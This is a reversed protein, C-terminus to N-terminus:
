HKKYWRRLVAEAQKSQPTYDREPYGEHGRMGPFWKWLFGGAWWPERYFTTLLAEIANAQALENVARQAIDRELEWTRGAAGDVSLYGFETFLIAKSKERSFDRLRQVHPRWAVCLDSVRPTDAESLPFYASLGIYDLASWFPVEQWDDWNASYTLAGKYVRRVQAILEVWFKPREAVARRFETGVCLMEARMSDAMRAMYLIYDAYQEEWRAWAAEDDFALDGTWGGPVYVQPKLMVKIGAAHALRITECVGEPREGWWQMKPLTNYRVAPVGRRTFAYPVVAIWNAGVARVDSMPDSSFPEPPAVLTLGRVKVTRAASVAAAAGLTEPNRCGEGWWCCSLAIALLKRTAGKRNWVYM